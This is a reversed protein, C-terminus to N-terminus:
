LVKAVLKLAFDLQEGMSVNTNDILVADEAKRLPSVKRHSDIYDRMELNAKVEELTVNPNKEFMEKFRREVRVSIDATMFIKLEAGPFVTTGIDRGDMVIGKDVGMKQQQNVAYKRVEGIAAVESVKEAIVLDRIVYEVNEDNIFIESNDAKTNYEFHLHIKKLAEAVESEESWDINNRLFFLTIARYMAGSDIYVYGLSRALQRALTSKGCSSWGDITIIIKTTMQRCFDNLFLPHCFPIKRHKCYLAWPVIVCKASLTDVKHLHIIVGKLSQWPIQM